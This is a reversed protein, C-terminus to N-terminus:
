TTELWSASPCSKLQWHQGQSAHELLEEYAHAGVGVHGLHDLVEALVLVGWDGTLIDPLRCTELRFLRQRFKEGFVAHLVVVWGQQQGSETAVFEIHGVSCSRIKPEPISGLTYFQWM